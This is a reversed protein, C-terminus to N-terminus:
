GGRKFVGYDSEQARSKGLSSMTYIRPVPNSVSTSYIQQCTPFKRQQMNGGGSIALIIQFNLRFHVFKLTKKVFLRSPDLSDQGGPFIGQFTGYIPDCISM